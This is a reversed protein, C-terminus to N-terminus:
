ALAFIILKADKQLHLTKMDLLFCSLIRRNIPFPLSNRYDKQPRLSLGRFLHM